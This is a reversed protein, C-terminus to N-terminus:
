PEVGRGVGLGEELGAGLELRRAGWWSLGAAVGWMVAAVAYPAHEWPGPSGSMGMASRVLHGGLTLEDVGANLQGGARASTVLTVIVAEGWARSATLLLVGTLRRRCAPFVVRRFVEARTAGLALGAERVGLGVGGLASLAGLAAAPLVFLGVALGAALANGEALGPWAWAIWPGLVAVGFCAFGVPPVWSFVALAWAWGRRGEPAAFEGLHAATLVAVPWATLLAIAAVLTSGAVLSLVGAAPGAGLGPHWRWGLLFDVARVEESRLFSAVRWGMVGVVAAAGLLLMAAGLGLAGRLLM